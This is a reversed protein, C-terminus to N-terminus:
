GLGMAKLGIQAIAEDEDSRLGSVGIGGLVQSSGPRAILVGGQLFLLNPDGLDAAGRGQEKMREAIAGSDGRFRVSTYAKKSAFTNNQPRAGDMRAFLVLECHDDLIAIAIPRDRDRMGEKLMAEMARQAEELGLVERQFM